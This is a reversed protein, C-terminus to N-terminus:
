LSVNWCPPIDSSSIITGNILSTGLLYSYLVPNVLNYFKLRIFSFHEKKFLFKM